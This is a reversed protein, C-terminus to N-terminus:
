VSYQLTWYETKRSNASDSVRYGHNSKYMYLHLISLLHFRLNSQEKPDNLRCWPPYPGICQYPCFYTNFLFDKNCLYNQVKQKGSQLLHKLQEWRVVNLDEKSISTRRNEQWKGRLESTIAATIDSKDNKYSIKCFM